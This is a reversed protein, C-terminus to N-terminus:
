LAGGLGFVERVGDRIIRYAEAKQSEYAPWIFPHPPTVTGDRNIHGHELPIAGNASQPVGIKIYAYGDSGHWKGRHKVRTVMIANKINGTRVRVLRRAEDAVPQAAAVLIKQARGIYEPGAMEKMRSALEDWGDIEMKFVTNNVDEGGGQGCDDPDGM